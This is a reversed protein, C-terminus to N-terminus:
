AIITTNNCVSPPLEHSLWRFLITICIINKQSDIVNSSRSILWNVYQRAQFPDWITDIAKKHITHKLCWASWRNVSYGSVRHLNNATMNVARSHTRKSAWWLSRSDKMQKSLNKGAESNWFGSWMMLQVVHLISTLIAQWVLLCITLQELHKFFSCLDLLGLKGMLNNVLTTFVM